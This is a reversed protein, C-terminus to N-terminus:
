FIDESDDIDFLLLDDQFQQKSPELSVPTVPEQGPTPVPVIPQVPVVPDPKKAGPGGNVQKIFAVLPINKLDM